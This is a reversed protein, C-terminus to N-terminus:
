GEAKAQGLTGAHAQAIAAGIEVLAAKAGGPDSWSFDGVLGVDAGAAAFAEAEERWAAFGVCPPEFM